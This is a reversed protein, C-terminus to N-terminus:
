IKDMVFFKLNNQLIHNKCAAIMCFKTKELRIKEKEKASLEEFDYVKKCSM